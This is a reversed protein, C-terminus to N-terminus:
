PRVVEINLVPHVEYWNHNAQNDYRSVGYVRVRSGVRPPELRIPDIIECVIFPETVHPSEVLRFSLDGDEDNIRVESVFGEAVVHPRTSHEMGAITVPHFESVDLSMALNPSSDPTRSSLHFAVAAAVAIMAVAIAGALAPRALRSRGADRDSTTEVDRQKPGAGDSAIASEISPWLDRGPTLATARRAFNDGTRIRALASRCEGCDLVHDELRKLASSSLEEHIYRSIDRKIFFCRLKM